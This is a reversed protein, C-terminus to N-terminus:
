PSGLSEALMTNEASDLVSYLQGLAVLLAGSRWGM